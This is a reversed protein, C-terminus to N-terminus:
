FQTWQLVQSIFSGACFRKWQEILGLSKGVVSQFGSCDIIMKANFKIQSEAVKAIVGIPKNNKDTIIETVNTNVFLETGTKEAESALYRYTKRVDLVAAKPQNDRITVSKTPSCFSYNTIPNYCTEPIGFENADAIWTVGSTRVTEAVEKEKELLAVSIGEKSAAFAASSGAPGAGVIVLDFNYEKM